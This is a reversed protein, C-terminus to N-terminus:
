FCENLKGGGFKPCYKKFECYSCWYGKTAAFKRNTIQSEYLIAEDTLEKVVADQNSPDIKNVVLNNNGTFLIAIHTPTYVTEKKILEAYLLLEDEYNGISYGKTTKYDILIIKDGIKDVRDIIGRWKEIEYKKERLLPFFHEQHEKLKKVNFEKFANFHIQYKDVFEDNINMAHLTETMAIEFGKDHSYHDYFKDFIDHLIIGKNTIEAKKGILKDIYGFKYKLSCDRFTKLKSKSWIM